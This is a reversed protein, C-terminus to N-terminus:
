SLERLPLRRTQGASRLEAEAEAAAIAPNKWITSVRTVLNIAV